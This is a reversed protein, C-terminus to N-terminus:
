PRIFHAWVNGDPGCVEDMYGYPYMLGGGYVDSYGTIADGWPDNVIYGSQNYGIICLIHGSATFDGAIPVPRRNVLEDM